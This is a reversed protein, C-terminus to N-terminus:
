IPTAETCYHNRATFYRPPYTTHTQKRRGTEGATIKKTQVTTNGRGLFRTAYKSAKVKSQMVQM